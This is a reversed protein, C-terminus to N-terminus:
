NEEIQQVAQTHGGARHVLSDTGVIGATSRLGVEITDPFVVDDTRPHWSQRCNIHPTGIELVREVPHPGTRELAQCVPCAAPQDTGHRGFDFTVDIGNDAFFSVTADAHASYAETVGIMEARAEDRQDSWQAVEEVAQEYTLGLAGFRQVQIEMAENYSAAISEAHDDAEDSLAQAVRTGVQVDDADYGFDHALGSLTDAYTRLKTLYLGDSLDDIYAEDRRFAEVLRNIEERTM